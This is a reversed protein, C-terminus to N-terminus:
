TLHTQVFFSTLPGEPCRRFGMEIVIFIRDTAATNTNPRIATEAALPASIKSM